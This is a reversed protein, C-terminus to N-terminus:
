VRGLESPKLPANPIIELFTVQVTGRGQGDQMSIKFPRLMTGGGHESGPAHSVTDTLAEGVPRFDEFQMAAETEGTPSLREEGVVVLLRRNFWIRRVPTPSAIAASEDAVAFVDLRYQDGEEVLRVHESATIPDTGVIGSMAWVSLRFTRSLQGLQDPESRRGNVERGMTPLRLRYLGDAQVFEFLEGGLPTFGRLRLADPRQYLITGQVRQGIPLIGGTIKASFLAKLSRMAAHREALLGTLEEVTAVRLPREDRPTFLACGDLAILLGAVLCAAVVSWEREAGRGATGLRKPWYRM